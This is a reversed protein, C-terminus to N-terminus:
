VFSFFFVFSNCLFAALKHDKRNREPNKIYIEIMNLSFENQSLSHHSENWVSIFLFGTGSVIQTGFKHVIQTGFNRGALEPQLIIYTDM